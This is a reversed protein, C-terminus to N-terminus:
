RLYDDWDLSAARLQLGMTPDYRPAPVTALLAEFLPELTRGPEDLRTTATGRRADTYLVPFELQGEDADLDIFLDYIEDLVQAARADARDIKNIVVVPPLGAEGARGLVFRPRPPPGGAAAALPLAGAVRPVARR